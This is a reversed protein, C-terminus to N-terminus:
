ASWQYPFIICLIYEVGIENAISCSSCCVFQFEDLSFNPVSFWEVFFPFEQRHEGLSVEFGEGLFLLHLQQLM